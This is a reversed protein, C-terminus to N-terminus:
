IRERRCLGGCWPRCRELLELGARKGQEKARSLEELLSKDTIFFFRWPNIGRSSPSRLAAEKLIDVVEEEIAREKYRRISRRKRLIDLLTEMTM